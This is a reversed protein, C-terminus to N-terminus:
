PRVTAGLHELLTLRQRGNAGRSVVLWGGRIRRAVSDGEAVPAEVIGPHGQLPRMGPLPTPSSGPRGADVLVSALIPSGNLEYETMTCSLLPQGVLGLHSELRTVVGGREIRLGELNGTRIECIGSSVGTPWTWNRTPETFLLLVRPGRSQHIPQDSRGLPVFSVPGPVSIHFSPVYQFHRGGQIEVVATRLGDPLVGETRTAIPEGGEVSVASVESTTVVVGVRIDPPGGYGSWTEGIIPGKLAKGEKCAKGEETKLCWGGEGVIVPPVFLVSEHRVRQIPDSSGSCALMVAICMTMGVTGIFRFLHKVYRRELQEDGRLQEQGIHAM